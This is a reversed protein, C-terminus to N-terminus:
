GSFLGMMDVLLLSKRFVPADAASPSEPRVNIEGLARPLDMPWTAGESWTFRAQMPMPLRPFSIM